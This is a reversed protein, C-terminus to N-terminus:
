FKAIYEIIPQSDILAMIDSIIVSAISNNIFVVSSIGPNQFNIGHM